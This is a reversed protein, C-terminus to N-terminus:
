IPRSSWDNAKYTRADNLLSLKSEVSDPSFYKTRLANDDPKSKYPQENIYPNESLVFKSWINTFEVSNLYPVVKPITKIKTPRAKLIDATGKWM